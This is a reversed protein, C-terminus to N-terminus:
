SAASPHFILLTDLSPTRVHLSIFLSTGTSTINGTSTGLEPAAESQTRIVQSANQDVSEMLNEVSKLAGSFWDGGWSM